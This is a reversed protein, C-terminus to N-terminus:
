VIIISQTFEQGAKRSAPNKYGMVYLDTSLSELELKRKLIPDCSKIFDATKLVLPISSKKKIQSLLQKGKSNFGLDRAYQPSDFRSLMNVDESTIGTLIGMLMRQVRTKTYRKTCIGDVLEEYTGAADAASKIRNELGESVYAFEKLQEPAMKRILSTVVPYFDEKFVPGRGAHFEEFLVDTSAKPLTMALVDDLSPPNSTSIYKRISSASSISGTINETNYDNSIRKITLPTISSKIRKLAKLYEIGLINNSSAIIESINIDSMAKFAAYKKLASERAAPYSLGKGLEEKLFSKYSAPEDALIQAISDLEKIDGHESGFCIYDVIGIDNLIRVAGSAFYEASAMACALPLEIVLDAGQSLAMKARAWKNVIAPEGRQIFNGSMVCVVLDAGSLKKSEELHYLHGNHFPNYEAILGLVKM